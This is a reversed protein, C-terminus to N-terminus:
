QISQGSAVDIADIVAFAAAASESANLEVPSPLSRQVLAMVSDM